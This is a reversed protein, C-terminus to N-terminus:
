IIAIETIRIGTVNKGIQENIVDRLPVNYASLLTKLIQEMRDGGVTNLMNRVIINVDQGLLELVDLVPRM